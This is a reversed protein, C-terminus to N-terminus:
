RDGEPAFHRALRERLRARARNLIVRQQQLTLGLRESVEDANRDLVDRAIVVERWTAPLDEIAAALADRVDADAPDAM